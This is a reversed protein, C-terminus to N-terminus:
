SQVEQTVPYLKIKGNHRRAVCDFSMDDEGAAQKARHIEDLEDMIETIGTPVIFDAGELTVLLEAYLGKWRQKEDGNEDEDLDDEGRRRWSSKKLEWSKVTMPINLTSKISRKAPAPPGFNIYCSIDKAM